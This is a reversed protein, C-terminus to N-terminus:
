TLAGGTVAFSVDMGEPSETYTLLVTDLTGNTIGLGVDLALPEMSESVLPIVLSASNVSMAVDMGEPAGNYSELPIELTAAEVGLAVSLEETPTPSQLMRGATVSASMTMEDISELPYPPSTEFCDIPPMGDGDVSRTVVKTRVAASDDVLHEFEFTDQDFRSPVMFQIRDITAVSIPPLTETLTLREVGGVRAANSVTRYLAPSGDTFTIGIVSRPWISGELYDVIGFPKADLTTGSVTATAPVIDQMLTPMWFRGARGEARDIFRRLAVVKDRGFLTVSSRMGILSRNGSDYISTVGQDNDLTYDNRNYTFELSDKRDIKFWWLPSCRGWSAGFGFDPDVLVFRIRSAGVRDTHGEQAAQETIRARRLPIIRTGSPWNKAPGLSFTLRDTDYDLQAVTLIEWDDPDGQNVFVKDGVQFERFQLTGQPFQYVTTGTTLGNVPRFQEHWLPMLFIRRGIGALFIDLRSRLQKTRLFSAEFTRRPSTRLARPQEAGAESTLIDTLYSFTETIGDGWNPLITFVPPLKEILATTSGDAVTGSTSYVWGPSSSVYIAENPHAILCGFGVNGSSHAVEFDIRFVGAPLLVQTQTVGAAITAAVSLGAANQGVKVTTAGSVWVKLLALTSKELKFWRTFRYTGAGASLAGM